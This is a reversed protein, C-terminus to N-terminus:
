LYNFNLESIDKFGNNVMRIESSIEQLVEIKADLFQAEIHFNHERCFTRKKRIEDRVKNLEEEIKSLEKM